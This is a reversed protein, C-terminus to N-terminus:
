EEESVSADINLSVTYNHGNVMDVQKSIEYGGLVFRFSHRGQELKLTKKTDEVRGGDCYAQTGVPLALRVTPTIDRLKIELNEIKAQPVTVTRVENRYSGSVVSIDHIGPSVLIGGGEDLKVEQGDIFIDTDKLQEGEPPLLKIFLRGRNVYIPKATIEFESQALSAPATKSSMQLRIFVKGNKFDPIDDIYVSYADQKINNSKSLPVKINLSLLDGFTGVTTRKGRYDTRNETPEPKVGNYFAWSVSDMWQAVEAPVKFLIEVGEIFNKDEPLSIVIADDARAVVTQPTGDEPIALMFTQRVKFM